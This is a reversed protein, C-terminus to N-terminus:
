CYAYDRGQRLGDAPLKGDRRLVYELIDLSDYIFTGEGVFELSSEVPIPTEEGDDEEWPRGASPREDHKWEWEVAEAGDFWQAM